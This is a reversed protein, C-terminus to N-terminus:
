QGHTNDHSEQHLPPRWPSGSPNAFVAAARGPKTATGEIAVTSYTLLRFLFWVTSYLGAAGRTHPTMHQQM